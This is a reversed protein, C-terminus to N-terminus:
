HIFCVCVFVSTCTHNGSCKLSGVKEFPVMDTIPRGTVNEVCWCYHEHCQIGRFSGGGDCQPTYAGLLPRSRNGLLLERASLCPTPGRLVVNSLPVYPITVPPQCTHGCGNYCCKKSDLCERDLSCEHVCIGVTDDRVAPCSYFLEQGTLIYM